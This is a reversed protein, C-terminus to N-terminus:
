PSTTPTISMIFSILAFPKNEPSIAAYKPMFKATQSLISSLDNGFHANCESDLFELCSKPAPMKQVLSAYSTGEVRPSPAIPRLNQISKPPNAPSQQRNRKIYALYVKCGQFNAAHQEGCNCCTPLLEPHHLRKEHLTCEGPKHPDICKVCRYPRHCHKSSHGWFQCKYCQTSNGKKRREIKVKQHLLYNTKLLSVVDSQPELQVLWLGLSRGIRKSYDTQYQSVSRIKIDLNLAELAQHVDSDEFSECLNRIIVSTAKEDSPTFTHFATQEKIMVEKISNFDEKTELQIRSCKGNVKTITFKGEGIISPFTATCQKHDLQYAIIPPPRIPKVPKSSNTPASKGQKGSSTAKGATKPAQLAAKNLKAPNPKLTRTFLGSRQTTAAPLTDMRDSLIEFSNQVSIATCHEFNSRKRKPTVTSYSDSDEFVLLKAQLASLEHNLKTFQNQLSLNKDREQQLQVSLSQHEPNGSSLTTTDEM